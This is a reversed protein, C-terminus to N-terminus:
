LSRVLYHPNGQKPEVYSFNGHSMYYNILKNNTPEMIRIKTAGILEGYTEYALLSVRFMDGSFLCNAPTKEIFDLRMETGKFTPRGLTLSCLSNGHWVSLDFAKPYRFCYRHAFNWDWDVKREPIKQWISFAALASRDVGKLKLKGKLHQPLSQEAISRANKRTEEYKITAQKHTALM